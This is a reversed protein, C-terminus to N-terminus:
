YEEDLDIVLEGDDPEDENIIEKIFTYDNIFDQIKILSRAEKVSHKRYFKM